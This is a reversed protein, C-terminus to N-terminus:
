GTRAGVLALALLDAKEDHDLGLFIAFASQVEDLIGKADAQSFVAGPDYDAAHRRQQITVFIRAYTQLIASMSKRGMAKHYGDKLMPKSLELLATKIKTHDLGRYVLTYGASPDRPGIMRDAAAAALQHFLAYYATSVSRRLAADSPSDGSAM